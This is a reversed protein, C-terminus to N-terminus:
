FASRYTKSVKRILGHAPPKCALLRKCAAHFDKRQWAYIFPNMVSNAMGLFVIWVAVDWEESYIYAPEIFGRIQFYTYPLWCVSFLLTVAALAKAGRLVSLMKAAREMSRRSHQRQCGSSSSCDNTVTSVSVNRPRVQKYVACAKRLILIYMVVTVITFVWLTLAMWLLQWPSVVQQFECSERTDWTNLGTFPLISLCAPYIWSVALFVNAVTSSMIFTYRHPHCIAIFRDFTTFTVTLQSTLTMFIVVQFRMLCAYLSENLDPKFVYLLQSLSALGTFMDAVALNVIFRNTIARRKLYKWIVTVVVSNGACAMLFVLVQLASLVVLIVQMEGEFLDTINRTLM